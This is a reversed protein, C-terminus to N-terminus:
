IIWKQLLIFWLFYWSPFLIDLSLSQLISTLFFFFSHSIGKLEGKEVRLSGCNIPNKESLSEDFGSLEVSVFLSTVRERPGACPTQLSLVQFASKDKPRANLRLWEVSTPYCADGPLHSLHQFTYSLGWEAALDSGGANWLGADKTQPFSPLPTGGLHPCPQFTHDSGSHVPM